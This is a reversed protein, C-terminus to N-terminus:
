QGPKLELFGGSGQAPHYWLTASLVVYGGVFLILLGVPLALNPFKYCLYCLTGAVSIFCTAGRIPAPVVDTILLLPKMTYEIIKLLAKLFNLIPGSFITCAVLLAFGIVFVVVRGRDSKLGRRIMRCCLCCLSCPFCLEEEQEESIAQQHANGALPRFDTGSGDSPQAM